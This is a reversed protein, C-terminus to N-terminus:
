SMGTMIIAHPNQQFPIMIGDIYYSQLLEGCEPCDRNNMVKFAFYNCHSCLNIKVFTDRHNKKKRVM